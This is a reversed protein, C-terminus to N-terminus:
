KPGELTQKLQKRAHFLRSKVTGEALALLESIERVSLEEMYFLEIVERQDNPLLSIAQRLLGVQQKDTHSSSTDVPEHQASVEFQRTRQNRRIWDASKNRTIRYSWAAFRAPDKLKGLNRVIALWSEQAVEQAGDGDRVLSMARYLLRPHWRRTLHDLARPNGAQCELVLFEDLIRQGGRM